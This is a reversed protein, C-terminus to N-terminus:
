DILVRVSLRVKLTEDGIAKLLADIGSTRTYHKEASAQDAALVYRTPQDPFSVCRIKYRVLGKGPSRENQHVLRPVPSARAVPCSPPSDQGGEAIYAAPPPILKVAKPEGELEPASAQVRLLDDPLQEGDFEPQPALSGSALTKKAM